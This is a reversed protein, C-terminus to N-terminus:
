AVNARTTLLERATIPRAPGVGVLSASAEVVPGILPPRDPGRVWAPAWLRQFCGLAMQPQVDARIEARSLKPSDSDMGDLLPLVLKGGLGAVVEGHGAPREQVPDHLGGRVVAQDLEIRDDLDSRRLARDVWLDDETPHPPPGVAGLFEALEQGGAWDEVAVM